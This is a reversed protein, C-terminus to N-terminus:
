DPALRMKANHVKRLHLLIYATVIVLNLGGILAYDPGSMTYTLPSHSRALGAVRFLVSIPLMLALYLWDVLLLGAILYYSVKNGREALSRYAGGVAMLISVPIIYYVSFRHLFPTIILLDPRQDFDDHIIEDFLSAVYVWVLFFALLLLLPKVYRM